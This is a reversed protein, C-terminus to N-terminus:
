KNELNFRVNAMDSFLALLINLFPGDSFGFSFVVSLGM